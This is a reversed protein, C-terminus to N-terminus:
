NVKTMEARRSAYICPGGRLIEMRRGVKNFWGRRPASLVMLKVATTTAVAASKPAAHM